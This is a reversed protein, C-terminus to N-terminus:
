YLTLTDMNFNLSSVQADTKELDSVNAYDNAGYLNATALTLDDINGDMRTMNNSQSSYEDAMKQISNLLYPANNLFDQKKEEEEQAEIEEDSYKIWYLIQEVEDWEPQEPKSEEIVEIGIDMGFFERDDDLPLWQPNGNEDYGIHPDDDDSFSYNTGDSFYVTKPVRKEVAQVAPQYDHHAIVKDDPILVGTKLLEEYQEQDEESDCLYTDNEKDYIKM